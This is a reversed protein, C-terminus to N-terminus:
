RKQHRKIFEARSAQFQRLNQLTNGNPDIEVNEIKFESKLNEMETLVQLQYDAYLQLAQIHKLGEIYKGLIDEDTIHRCVNAHSYNGSTCPLVSGGRDTMAHPCTIMGRRSRFKEPDNEREDNIASVWATLCDNCFFHGRSCKIGQSIHKDEGCVCCSEIQQNLDVTSSVTTALSPTSPVLTLATELLLSLNKDEDRYRRKLRIYDAEIFPETRNTKNLSLICAREGETLKELLDSSVSMNRDKIFSKLIAKEADNIRNSIHAVKIANLAYIIIDSGENSSITEIIERSSDSLQRCLYETNIEM